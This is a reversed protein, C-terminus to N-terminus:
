SGFGIAPEVTNFTSVNDEEVILSSATTTMHTETRVFLGGLHTAVNYFNPEGNETSADDTLQTFPAAGELQVLRESSRVRYTDFMRGCLDVAERKLIEGEVVMTAGTTLDTGGSAWFDGEGTDLTMLTIPPTPTFSFEADPTKIHRRVLLLETSTARLRTTTTTNGIPVIQDFEITRAGPDVPDDAATTKDTVDAIEVRGDRPYPGQFTFTGSQAKLTGKNHTPYIGALPPTSIGVTVPERPVAGPAATPCDTRLVPYLSSLPAPRVVLRSGSLAFDTQVVPPRNEVAREPAVDDSKFALELTVRKLGMQLKSEGGGCASALLVMAAMWCISSLRGKRTM